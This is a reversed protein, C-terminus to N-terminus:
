GATRRLYMYGILCLGRFLDLGPLGNTPCRNASYTSLNSSDHGYSFIRPWLDVPAPVGVGKHWPAVWLNRVLTLAALHNVGRCGGNDSLRASCCVLHADLMTSAAETRGGVICFHGLPLQRADAPVFGRGWAAWGLRWCNRRNVGFYYAVLRDNKTERFRYVTLM